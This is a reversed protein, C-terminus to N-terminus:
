ARCGDHRAEHQDATTVICMLGGSHSSLCGYILSRRTRRRGVREAFRILLFTAAAAVAVLVVLVAFAVEQDEFPLAVNMGWLAAVIAPVALAITIETLTRVLANLNMSVLASWGEMLDNHIRTFVAAIEGNEENRERVEHLLSQLEGGDGFLGDERVADLMRDNSRLASEFYALSRGQDILEGLREGTLSARLEEEEFTSRDHIERLDNRFVEENAALLGLMTGRPDERAGGASGLVEDM